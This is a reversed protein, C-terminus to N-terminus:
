KTITLGMKRGLQDYTKYQEEVFKKTAEPSRIQPISGLSGTIKNWAKDEKVGQLADAWKDVIEKPLGPPGLLASWGICVGLGPYGLEYVTPVDPIAPFRERTTVALARLTGGRIQDLAPALNIALFDVHGGVLATRAAGGGKYPVPIAAKADLGITDLLMLVALSLMTHPGSQSYSLKGPNAKLAKILDDFTKYPSKANVVYVFPNLELLGLFTFEDWRYPITKNVAPTTANCGVRGLLLTYGDPKSKHVFTSGTVGGAGTRNVVVVPKGIYKDAVSALTRSALDSSGGPGYPAVLTIAKEPYAASAHGPVLVLGIAVVLASISMLHHLRM